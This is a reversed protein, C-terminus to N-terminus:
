FALEENTRPGTKAAAPNPLDITFVCGRGPLDRVHLQGGNAEVGRRSIALGLGFGSRDASRQKFPRFLDEANGTPLGGCEDEIEILVRDVSSLTTLAVRGHPRTFKFANLLLNTVAGALIQREVEIILGAEVDPVVLELGRSEADIAASVRMEEIFESVLVRERNLPVGAELRVDVLARACLDQLGKLARDLIAATSGTVGVNGLKIAHVALMATNILNRFEHALFGLRETHSHQSEDAIIRDRSRAFESVAGAIANDLCRNLTQFEANTIFEGREIALETIAQCLDGYDHVVQDVTFGRLLLESGHIAASKGIGVAVSPAETQVIQGSEAKLSLSEQHLIETLQILFVPIGHNLEKDTARPARRKSVKERCRSILEERNAILLEHLLM